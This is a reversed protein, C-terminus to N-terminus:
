RQAGAPIAAAIGQELPRFEYQARHSFKVLRKEFFNWSVHALGLTLVVALVSLLFSAADVIRPKSGMMTAFLLGQVPMHFLYAGYAISGLWRFPSLRAVRAIGGSQHTCVLLLLCAYLAALVTFGYSAMAYSGLDAHIKTLFAAVGFLIMLVGALLYKSSAIKQRWNANRLLIACVVGFLLADARCFLLVYSGLWGDHSSRFLIVRVVPALAIGLFVFGYLVRRPFFRVISPLTLYFQEEVALSWTAALWGGGFIGAHAMWFNQMFLLYTWFPMTNSFTWSYAGDGGTFARILAFATLLVLYIPVIRFFRRIYFVKFYNTSNKADLLIGGILFGSLVFFLDVGSWTLDCLAQVYSFFTAQRTEAVSAFIHWVLVLGIACGRLGDLEPVRTRSDASSEARM